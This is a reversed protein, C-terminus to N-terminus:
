NCRGPASRSRDREGKANSPSPPPPALRTVKWSCSTGPAKGVSECLCTDKPDIYFLGCLVCTAPSPPVKPPYKGCGRVKGVWGCRCVYETDNPHIYSLGCLACMRTRLFSRSGKFKTAGAAAGSSAEERGSAPHRTAPPDVQSGSGGGWATAIVAQVWAKRWGEGLIPTQHAVEAIGYFIAQAREFESGIQWWGSNPRWWM